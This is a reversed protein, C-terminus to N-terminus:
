YHDGFGRFATCSPAFPTEVTVVALGVPVFKIDALEYHCEQFILGYASAGFVGRKREREGVRGRETQGKRRGEDTKIRTTYLIRHFDHPM